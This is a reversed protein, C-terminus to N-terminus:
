LFFILVFLIDEGTHQIILYTNYIVLINVSLLTGLSVERMMKCLPIEIRSISIGNNMSQSLTGM